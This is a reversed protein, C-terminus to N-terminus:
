EHIGMIHLTKKLVINIIEINYNVNKSQNDLLGNPVHAIECHRQKAKWLSM